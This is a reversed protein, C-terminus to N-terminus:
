NFTLGHGASGHALLNNSLSAYVCFEGPLEGRISGFSFLTSLQFNLTLLSFRSRIRTARVLVAGNPLSMALVIPQALLAGSHHASEERCEPYVTM